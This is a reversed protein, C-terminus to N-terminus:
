QVLMSLLFDFGIIKSGMCGLMRRLYSWITRDCAKSMNLKLSLCGSAGKRLGKISHLIKCAVIYNDIIHRRTFVGVKSGKMGYREMGGVIEVDYGICLMGM